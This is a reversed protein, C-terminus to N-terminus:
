SASLLRLLREWADGVLVNSYSEWRNPNRAGPKLEYLRDLEPFGQESSLFERYKGAARVIWAGGAPYGEREFRMSGNHAALLDRLEQYPLRKQM